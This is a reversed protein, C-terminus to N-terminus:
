HFCWICKHKSDTTLDKWMKCLYVDPYSLISSSFSLSPSDLRSSVDRHRLSTQGSSRGAEEEKGSGRKGEVTDTHQQNSKASSWHKPCSVFYVSYCLSIKGAARGGSFVVEHVCCSIRLLVEHSEILRHVHPTRLTHAVCTQIQTILTCILHLLCAPSHGLLYGHQQTTTTTTKLWHSIINIWQTQQKTRPLKCTGM